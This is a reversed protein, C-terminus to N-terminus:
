RSGEAQRVAEILNTATEMCLALADRQNHRNAYEAAWRAADSLATPGMAIGFFAMVAVMVQEHAPIGRRVIGADRSFELIGKISHERKDPRLFGDREGMMVIERVGKSVTWQDRMLGFV